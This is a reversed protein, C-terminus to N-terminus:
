LCSTTDQPDLTDEPCSFFNGTCASCYDCESENTTSTCDTDKAGCGCDCDGDGVYTTSCEWGDPVVCLPNVPAEDSADECDPEGDCQWDADALCEGDQCLFGECAPPEADITAATLTLCAGGPVPTSTSDGAITVEVLKLNAVTAHITGALQTSTDDIVLTGESQFFVTREGNPDAIVLFCRTCTAYNDDGNATLDFTGKAGGDYDPPGQVALQFTDDGPGAINPTVPASYRAYGTAVISEFQGLTIETCGVSDGGGEGGNGTPAGSNGSEGGNGTAAGGNGAPSGSSGSEGGNGTAGGNSSPEGGNSSPEGGVGSLSGAKGGNASGGSSMADSGGANEGAEGNGGSSASDDGCATAVSFLGFAALVLTVNLKSRMNDASGVM